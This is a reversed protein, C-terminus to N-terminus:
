VFSRRRLDDDDLSEDVKTCFACECALAEGGNDGERCFTGFDGTGDAGEEGTVVDEDPGGCGIAVISSNRGAQRGPPVSGIFIVIDCLRGTFDSLPTMAVSDRCHRKSVRGGLLALATAAEEREKELDPM